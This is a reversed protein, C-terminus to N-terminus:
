PRDNGADDMRALRTLWRRLFLDGAHWAQNRRQGLPRAAEGIEFQFVDCEVAHAPDVALHPYAPKERHARWEVAEFEIEVDTGCRSAV